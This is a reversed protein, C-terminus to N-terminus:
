RAPLIQITIQKQQYNRWPIAAGPRQCTLFASYLAFGNDLATFTDSTVVVSRQLYPTGAAPALNDVPGDFLTRTGRDLGTQTLKHQQVTLQVSACDPVVAVDFAIQVTSDPQTVEISSPFPPLPPFATIAGVLLQAAPVCANPDASTCDPAIWRTYYSLSSREVVLHDPDVAASQAYWDQGPSAILVPAAPPTGVPTRLWVTAPKIFAQHHPTIEYVTSPKGYVSPLPPAGEKKRSVRFEVSTELGLAGPPVSLMVSDPGIVYGGQWDISGSCGDGEICELLPHTCAPLLAFGALLGLALLRLGYRWTTGAHATRSRLRADM